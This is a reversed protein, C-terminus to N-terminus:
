LTRIEAALREAAKRLNADNAITKWPSAILGTADSLALGIRREGYDIGLARVFDLTVCPIIASLCFFSPPLRFFSCLLCEEAKRRGDETKRRENGIKMREDTLSIASAAATAVAASTAHLPLARRPGEFYVCFSTISPNSPMSGCRTARHICSPLSGWREASAFVPPINGSAVVCEGSDGVAHAENAVPTLAPLCLM